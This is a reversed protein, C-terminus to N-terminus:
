EGQSYYQLLDHSKLCHLAKEEWNNNKVVRPSPHPMYVIKVNKLLIYQSIAKQARLLCFRGIAVVTDVEYLRLVNALVLDGINYLPEMESMKFDSPTINCGSSTMWQQNIYNYVFSTKFFNEPTHCLKKFLGWFRKGSVETRTCQFGKVPRFENENPPRDVQGEICLWDRVSSIEGFPVGTQSMGWPGPNMGFFMIKKKSSCYKRIYTEFTERAYITPNYVHKVKSPLFLQTLSENYNEIINLFEDCLDDNPEENTDSAFFVSTVESM